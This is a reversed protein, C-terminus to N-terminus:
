IITHIGKELKLEATKQFLTYLKPLLHGMTANGDRINM